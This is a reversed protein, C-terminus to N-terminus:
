RARRRLGALAGLGLGLLVFSGPEPIPTVSALTFPAVEFIAFESHPTYNGSEIQLTGLGSITLIALDHVGTQEGVSLAASGLRILGPLEPTVFCGASLRCDAFNDFPGIMLGGTATIRLNDFDFIGGGEGTSANFRLTLLENTLSGVLDLTNGQGAGDLFFQLDGARSTAPLALALLAAALLWGNRM